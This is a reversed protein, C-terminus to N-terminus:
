SRFEYREQALTALPRMTSEVIGSAVAGRRISGAFLYPQGIIAVAVDDEVRSLGLGGRVDAGLHPGCCGFM